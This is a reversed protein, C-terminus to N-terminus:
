ADQTSGLWCPACTGPGRGGALARRRRVDLLRKARVRTAESRDSGLPKAGSGFGAVPLSPHAAQVAPPPKMHASLLLDGQAAAFSPVSLLPMWVKTAWRRACGVHTAHVGDSHGGPLVEGVIFWEPMLIVCGMHENRGGGDDADWCDVVVVQRSLSPPLLLQGFLVCLCMCVCDCVGVCVCVNDLEVHFSMSASWVPSTSGEVVCTRGVTTVNWAATYLSKLAAGGAATAVRSPVQAFCVPLSPRREDTCCCHSRGFVADVFEQRAKTSRPQCVRIEAYPDSAGNMDHAMLSRAAEVRVVMRWADDIVELCAPTDCVGVRHTSVPPTSARNGPEDRDHRRVTTAPTAGTSEPRPDLAASAPAAVLPNHSQVVEAKRRHRRLRSRIFQLLPM